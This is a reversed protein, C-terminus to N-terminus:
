DIDDALLYGVLTPACSAAVTSSCSGTCTFFLSPACQATSCSSSSLWLDGGRSACFTNRQYLAPESGNLDTRAITDNAIEVSGVASDRMEANGVANDAMEALGCANDALDANGVAGDLIRASTVGNDAISFTTGSLALGGGAVYSGLQDVDCIVSGTAALGTMKLGAGCALTAGLPLYVGAHTHAATAFGAAPIGGLATANDANDAVGARGAYPVSLIPLRPSTPEGDIVIELSLPGGTFLGTDLPDNSGLAVFVLGADATVTHDEEWVETSGAFLRFRLDVPGDVPGDTDAIRGAFSMQTPVAAVPAAAAALAVLAGLSSLAIKNM